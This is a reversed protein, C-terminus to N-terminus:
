LSQATKEGADILKLLREGEAKLADLLEPLQELAALRVNRSCELLSSYRPSGVKEIHEQRPNDSQNEEMAVRVTLEWKDGLRSYGLYGADRCLVKNDDKVWPDASLPKDLWVEVGLNMRSLKQNIRALTSNLQNSRQNLQKAIPALESIDVMM